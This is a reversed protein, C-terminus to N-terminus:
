NKVVYSSIFDELLIKILTKNTNLNFRHIDGTVHSTLWCPRAGCSSPLEKHSM